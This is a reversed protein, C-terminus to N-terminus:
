DVNGTSQPSQLETAEEGGKRIREINQKGNKLRIIVLEIGNDTETELVIRGPAIQIVRGHNELADGVEIVQLDGKDIRVVARQDQPSIKIVRLDSAFLPQVSFLVFLILISSTLIGSSIKEMKILVKVQKLYLDKHSGSKKHLQQRSSHEELRTAPQSPKKIVPVSALFGAGPFARGAKKQLIFCFLVLASIAFGSDVPPLVVAIGRDPYFAFTWAFILSVVYGALGILGIRLQLPSTLFCYRHM